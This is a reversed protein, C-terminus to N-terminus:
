KVCKEKVMKGFHEALAPNKQIVVKIDTKTDMVHSLLQAYQITEVQRTSRYIRDLEESFDKPFYIQALYDGHIKVDFDLDIKVNTQCNKGMETLMSSFMKDLPTSNSCVAYHTSAHLLKRLHAFEVGSFGIVPWPHKWVCISGKKEPNPFRSEYMGVIFRLM